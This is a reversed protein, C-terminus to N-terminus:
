SSFRLRLDNKPDPLSGDPSADLKDLWEESAPLLQHYIKRMIKLARHGPWVSPRVKRPWNVDKLVIRRWNHVLLSRLAMASRGDLSKVTNVDELLCSAADIFAEFQPACDVQFEMNELVFDQKNKNNNEATFIMVTELDVHQKKDDAVSPHMALKRGQFGFGAEHMQKRECNNFGESRVSLAFIWNGDWDPPNLNYIIRAAKENEASAMASPKYYSARGIRERELWGDSALRSMATRLANSEIGIAGTIQQLAGLRLVKGRPAIADGFITVVLSWVRIRGFSQSQAHIYKELLSSNIDAM